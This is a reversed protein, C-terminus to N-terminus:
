SEPIDYLNISKGIVTVPTYKELWRYGDYPAVRDGDQIRKVSVAIWGTARQHPELITVEPLDFQSLDATGNYKLYIKHIGRRKLEISLRYLDQGWDLDSDSLIKEPHQLALENAYALYDPYSMASSWLHWGVLILALTKGIFRHASLNWLWVFGAGAVISLLPFVPLIHRVGININVPMTVLFITVACVLPVAIQWRRESRARRFVIISGVVSLILFGLTTKLAFVVPFFYWVGQTSYKGFFFHRHGVEDHNIVEEIGVFLEPMPVIPAELVKYSIDHLMGVNGVIRDVRTYPRNEANLLSGTSFRYGAWLIVFGVLVALALNAILRRATIRCVEDPHGTDGHPRKVRHSIWYSLAIAATCAPLFLLTSFKSLVALAWTIGLVISSRLDVRDLWVVFAYLALFFLTTLVMDTTALGAHALVPPLSSYLMVAVTAAWVGFLRRTWYWLVVCSIVLFPLVGLRALSLNLFYHGGSALIENGSIWMQPYIRGYMEKQRNDYVVIREHGRQLEKLIDKQQASIRVGSLYLGIATMVRALPPHQPEYSYQGMDLWQLGAAIHAPEDYTQSFLSYTSGVLTVACLVFLLALGAALPETPRRNQM